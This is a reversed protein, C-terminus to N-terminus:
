EGGLGQLIGKVASVSSNLIQKGQLPHKTSIFYQNDKAGHITVEAMEIFQGNKILIQNKEDWNFISQKPVVWAQLAYSPTVTIREGLSLQCESKITQTWATVFSQEAIGSVSIVSLSCNDTKVRNIVKKFKIPLSIKLRVSKIPVISFIAEDITFHGDNKTINILGGEPAIVTLSDDDENINSVLEMFHSMHGFELKVALYEKSLEIWKKENITKQQLLKKNKKYRAELLVMLQKNFEFETVFHHIEPGSLIAIPDGKAVEQGNVVTFHIQQITAPAYLIFDEGSRIDVEAALNQGPYEKKVGPTVYELRLKKLEKISIATTNGFTAFNFILTILTIIISKM